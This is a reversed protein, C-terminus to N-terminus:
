KVTVEIPKARQKDVHVGAVLELKDGAQRYLAFLYDPYRRWGIARHGLRALYARGEFRVSIAASSEGFTDPDIQRPEFKLEGPGSLQPDSTEARPLSDPDSDFRMVLTRALDAVKACDVGNCSRAIVTFATSFRLAVTCAQRWAGDRWPDVVIQEDTDSLTREFIFAPEGAVDGAVGLSGFGSCPIPDGEKAEKLVPPGDVPEATGDPPATFFVFRQCGASGESIAAAHLTSQGFRHLDAVATYQVLEGAQKVLAASAHFMEQLTRTLEASKLRQSSALRVVADPRAALASVPSSWADAEGAPLDLRRIGDAIAQCAQQALSDHAVGLALLLAPIAALRTRILLLLM